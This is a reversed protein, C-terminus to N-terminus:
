LSLIDKMKQYEQETIEGKAFRLKLIKLSDTRDSCQITKGPKIVKIVLFAILLVVLIMILFGMIGGGLPWYGNGFGNHFCNWM